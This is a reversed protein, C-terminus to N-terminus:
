DERPWACPENEKTLAEEFVRHANQEIYRVVLSLVQTTDKQNYIFRFGPRESGPRYSVDATARLDRQKSGQTNEDANNDCGRAGKFSTQLFLVLRSKDNRFPKLGNLFRSNAQLADV